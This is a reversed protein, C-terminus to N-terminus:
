HDNGSNWKNILCQEDIRQAENRKTDAVHDRIAALALSLTAPRHRAPWWPRYRQSRLLTTRTATTM